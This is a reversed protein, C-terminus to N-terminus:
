PRVDGSPSDQPTDVNLEDEAQRAVWAKWEKAAQRSMAQRNKDIAYELMKRMEGGLQDLQDRLPMLEALLEASAAHEGRHSLVVCKGALGFARFKKEVPDLNALEDFLQYAREDDGKKLLYLRALQQKALLIYFPNDPWHEAIALWAEETNATSAYLYQSLASEQQLVHSRSPDVAGLLTSRTYWAVGGGVVLGLLIVAILRGWARGRHQEFPTTRMLAALRQTAAGESAAGTEDGLDDLDVASNDPDDDLGEIRLARLERLLERPSTFRDAPEKALMKHVIRCLVPPLDPRAAELRPPETKLHQVAVALPTEGRFPPDGSLMHYCTVGFSYIDSRADLPRGEVQEPSMYLPTGMTVGIQTLNVSAGDGAIRALGFDAVKVEGSRALMINEPKVDRHIIGQEAAKVLAAAVQRMISAALRASPPGRRALLENLNQGAVYEQAIYHVGEVCGVEHIQVINAHVLAAAAQAENRFRLIYNSDTALEQRLVKVAVQRRLSVQEALYVEAM